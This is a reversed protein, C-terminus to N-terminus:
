QEFYTRKFQPTSGANIDTVSGLRQSYAISKTTGATQTSGLSGSEAGTVSGLCSSNYNFEDM